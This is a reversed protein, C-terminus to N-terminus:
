KQEVRKIEYVMDDKEVLMYTGSMDDEKTDYVFSMPPEILKFELRNYERWESRAVIKAGFIGMQLDDIQQKYRLLKDRLNKIKYEIEKTKEVLENFKRLKVRLQPASKVGKQKDSLIKAKIQAISNRNRLIIEKNKNYHEKLHKLVIKGDKIKEELNEILEKQNGETSTIILHNESGKITEIEILHNSILTLHSGLIDVIIERAKVKGSTAQIIHAKKAEVLGGELRHIKCENAKLYGRHINIEAENSAIKSKKHTQGDIIVKKTKVKAGSGVNGKVHLFTTEVEMGDGIAEKLANSETIELKVDSNEAGVVSGTRINIQRVELEDKISIRDGDFSLYGNKKVVYEIKNEDENIEIDDKILYKPIEITKPTKAILLEGKCNRGNRGLKPKIIEIIVDGEEVPYVLGKKKVDIKDGFEDYKELKNKYHEILAGDVSKIMKLGKCVEISEEGDLSGLVRIKAIIKEIDQMMSGEFVDILLSNRLKKKNLEKILYEELLPSYFLLSTPSIHYVAKCFDRSVMMKGLLELDDVFDYKKVKIEYSQRIKIEENILNSEDEFHELSEEDALVYDNDEGFKIYTQTDLVDFDIQSLPINYLKSIEHITKNVNDTKLVIPLVDRIEEKSQPEKKKKFINLFGM